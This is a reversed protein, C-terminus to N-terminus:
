STCTASWTPATPSRSASRPWPLDWRGMSFPIVYMTRGEHLRPLPGDDNGEAGTTWGTTPPARRTGTPAPSSLATRWERWTARTPGSCSAIPGSGSRRPAERPWWCAMLREYEARSGDCWHIADPQCLEASERVWDNLRKNMVTSTMFKEGSQIPSIPGGAPAEIRRCDMTSSLTAKM